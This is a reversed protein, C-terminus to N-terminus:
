PGGRIIAGPNRSWSWGVRIIRTMGSSAAGLQLPRARPDPRARIAVPGRTDTRCHPSLAPRLGSTRKLSSVRCVLDRPPTFVPSPHLPQNGHDHIM